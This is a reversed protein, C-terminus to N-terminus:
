YLYIDLAKCKKEVVCNDPKQVITEPGQGKAFLRATEIFGWADLTLHLPHVRLVSRDHWTASLAFSFMMDPILSLTTTIVPALLPIPSAVASRSASRSAFTTSPARPRSRRSARAVRM